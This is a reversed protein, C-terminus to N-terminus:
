RLLLWAGAGFSALRKEKQEEEGSRGGRRLGATIVSDQGEESQGRGGKEWLVGEWPEQARRTSLFSLPPWSPGLWTLPGQARGSPM